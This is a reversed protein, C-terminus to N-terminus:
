KGYKKQFHIKNYHEYLSIIHSKKMLISLERRNKESYFGFFYSTLMKYFRDSFERVQFQDDVLIKQKIVQNFQNELTNGDEYFVLKFHKLKKNLVNGPYRKLEAKWKSIAKNIASPDFSIKSGSFRYGLFDFTELDKIFRVKKTNLKLKSYKVTEILREYVQKVKDANKDMAIMDDGVRRYFAIYKGAWKDFEDMFLNSLLGSLPTGTMLGKSRNKILGYEMTEASIFLKILKETKEDLGLLSIKNYLMDHDMSDTYDSLDAVLVYNQGFYRKYRRIASRAAFYSPHSKRYSFLFPSVYADFVPEVIRYIAEAKIREKITYVYIDRTAGTKKPIAIMYAPTIPSFSIMDARIQELIDLSLYNLNNLKVGDIGYYRKTKQNEDFKKVVDFYAQRINDPDIINDYLDLTSLM